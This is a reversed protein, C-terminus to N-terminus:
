ITELEDRNPLPEFAAHPEQQYWYVVSSIDDRLPLFRKFRNRWGLAQMTIKLDKEFCIPDLVHFRYMGFRQNLQHTGSPCIVQHLGAYLNTYQKYTGKPDEFSWAGGFYDETGTGCITPFEKDGDMYFKIEGEGWWYNNNAQWAMYTGVYQG